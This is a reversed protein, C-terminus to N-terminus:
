NGSEVARVTSVLRECAQAKGARNTQETAFTTSSEREPISVITRDGHVDVPAGVSEDFGEENASDYLNGGIEFNRGFNRSNRQSSPIDFDGAGLQQQFAVDPIPSRYSNPNSFGAPGPHLFRNYRITCGTGDRPWPTGRICIGRAPRGGDFVYWDGSYNSRRNTESSSFTPIITNLFTNYEIALEGGANGFYDQDSFSSSASSINNGLRHMDVVHSSNAPGFLNYRLEYSAYARGSGNVAHRHANFYNHEIRPNGGRVDVGM